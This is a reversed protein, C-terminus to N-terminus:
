QLYLDLIEFNIMCRMDSKMLESILNEKTKCVHAMHSYNKFYFTLMYTVYKKYKKKLGTHKTLAESRKM